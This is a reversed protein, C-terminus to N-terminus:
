DDIGYRHNGRMLLHTFFLKLAPFLRNINAMSLVCHRECFTNTILKISCFLAIGTYQSNNGLLPHLLLQNTFYINFLWD